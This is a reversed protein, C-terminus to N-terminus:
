WMRGCPLPVDISARAQAADQGRNAKRRDKAACVGAPGSVVGLVLM